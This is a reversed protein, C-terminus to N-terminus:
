EGYCEKVLDIRDQIIIIDSSLNDFGGALRALLQIETGNVKEPDLWIALCEADQEAMVVASEAKESLKKWTITVPEM